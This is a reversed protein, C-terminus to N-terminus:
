VSVCCGGSEQTKTGGCIDEAKAKKEERIVNKHNTCGCTEGEPKVQEQVSTRLDGDRALYDAEEVGGLLCWLVAVGTTRTEIVSTCQTGPRVKEEM